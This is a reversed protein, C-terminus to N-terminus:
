CWDDPWNPYVSKIKDVLKWIPQRLSFSFEGRFHLALRRIMEEEGAAVADLLSAEDTLIFPQYEPDPEVINLLIKVERTRTQTETDDAIEFDKPRQSMFPTM